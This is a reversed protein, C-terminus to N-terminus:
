LSMGFSIRSAARMSPALGTSRTGGHRAAATPRRGRRWRGAPAQHQAPVLGEPASLRVEALAPVSAASIAEYELGSPRNQALNDAAESIAMAGMTTNPQNLWFCSTCPRVKPATWILLESVLRQSVELQLVDLLAEASTSMMLPTLRSIASPSNMTKTPGRAAALGGQQAQDRPELRDVAPLGAARRCAVDAAHGRAPAAERHHELAIREIRVHAHVVVHGEAQLRERASCPGSRSWADLVRRFVSCGRRLVELAQGLVQRPPWRWRTAMPRAMTRAGLTNRNSSGSDLRSAASRPLM